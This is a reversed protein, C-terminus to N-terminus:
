HNKGQQDCQGPQDHGAALGIFCLLWSAIPNLNMPMPGDGDSVRIAGNRADV